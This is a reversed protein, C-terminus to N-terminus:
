CQLKNGRCKLKFYFRYSTNYSPLASALCSAVKKDCHCSESRCWSQEDGCVVDGDVVEFEYPTLLPRCTAESSSSAM